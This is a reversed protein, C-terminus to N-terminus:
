LGLLEKVLEMTLTSCIKSAYEGASLVIEKEEKLCDEYIRKPMNKAVISLHEPLIENPLIGEDRLNDLMKEVRRKTVISSMINKANEKEKLKNPDEVKKIHNGIKTEKFDKNVLKLIFPSRLTTDTMKTINRVVVGEQTNGYSNIHSYKRVDEWNTFEGVYLEAIYELGCKNCLAKVDDPVLWMESVKDYVDFILWHKKTEINEYHIANKLNWEGFFVYDPHERFISEDLSKVFQYFGQLTNTPDLEKKHSFIHVTDDETEYTVSANAGDYKETISIIDGKEFAYDNRPRVMGNPLEIEDERLNEIELYHKM